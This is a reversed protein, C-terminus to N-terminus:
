GETSRGVLAQEDCCVVDRGPAFRPRGEEDVVMESEEGNPPPAAAAPDTLGTADQIDLILEEEQETQISIATNESAATSQLLATPAPM